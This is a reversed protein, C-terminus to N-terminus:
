IQQSLVCTAILMVTGPAQAGEEIVLMLWGLIVYHVCYMMSMNKSWRAFVKHIKEPIFKVIYFCVSLWFLAFTGLVINGMLDHHYYAEQYLEGFAGFQVDNIYAYVWLPISLTGAGVLLRSYLAEKDQCRILLKGFFYGLIPYSIWPLFPFWSYEDTGWLLGFVSNAVESEFSISRVVLNLTSLSCWIVFIYMDKINFKKIIGFFVFTLGAFALIDIGWLCEWAETRYAMDGSTQALLMYPIVDRFINFIYGLAVLKVGRKLLSNADSRTSYVIGLGLSLM